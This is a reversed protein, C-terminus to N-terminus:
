SVQVASDEGGANMQMELLESVVEEIPSRAQFEALEARGHHRVGDDVELDALDANTSRVASQFSMSNVLEPEQLCGTM